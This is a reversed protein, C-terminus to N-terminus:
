GLRARLVWIAPDDLVLLPVEAQLESCGPLFWLPNQSLSVGLPSRITQTTLSHSFVRSLLQIIWSCWRQHLRRCSGEKREEKRGEMKGKRKEKRGGERKRGGQRKKRGERGRERGKKRGAKRRGKRGGKRGQFKRQSVKMFAPILLLSSDLLNVGWRTPFSICLM